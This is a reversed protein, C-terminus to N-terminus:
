QISPADETAVSRLDDLLSGVTPGYREVYRSNIKDEDLAGFEHLARLAPISIYVDANYGQDASYNAAYLANDLEGISTLVANYRMRDDVELTYGTENLTDIVLKEYHVMNFAHALLEHNEFMSFKINTGM